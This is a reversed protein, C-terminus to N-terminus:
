LEYIEFATKNFINQIEYSPNKKNLELIKLLNEATDTESSFALGLTEPNKKVLYIKEFGLNKYALNGEEQITKLYQNTNLVPWGYYISYRHMIWLTSQENFNSDYVFLIAVEEVNSLMVLTNIKQRKNELFSYQFPFSYKPRKNKTVTELWLDLDNYGEYAYHKQIERSFFNKPSKLIHTNYSFITESFLIIIAILYSFNKNFYKHILTIGYVTLIILIPSILSLFRQSPGIVLYMAFFWFFSILIILKQSNKKKLSSIILALLSLFSFYYFAPSLGNQLNKFFFFFKEPLNTFETKGPQIKWYEPVKGALSSFQFDFHGFTKLLMINYIIVPSFIILSLLFGIWLYNKQFFKKDRNFYIYTLILPLLIFSTYKTLVALGLSIGFFFYNKQNKESHLFFFIALLMFFITTSEQLGLRSVWVLYPNTSAFLSIIIALFENTIKKTIFYILLVSMTGLLASPLRLALTNEGFIKLSLNQIWFFLPPHDHFSLRLWFPTINYKEWPTPQNKAADFDMLGLARFGLSSEDTIVDSAALNRSRFFLSVFIIFFLILTKKQPIIQINM